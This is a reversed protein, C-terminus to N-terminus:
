KTNVSFAKPRTMTEHYVNGYCDTVKIELTSTPSSPYTRFLHSTGATKMASGELRDNNKNLRWMDFSIIHLPDFWNTVGWNLPKGDETIELKWSDEWSFINIIVENSNRRDFAYDQALFAFNSVFTPDSHNQDPAYEEPTIYINNRDYTRFQYSRDYGMSKYYRKYDSGTWEMVGYGGVSGDRCIHTNFYKGTWWWTACVGAINHEIMNDGVPINFNVHTHGTLLRVKSFGAFADVFEDANQIQRRTILEGTESRGPHGHLPIHMCVVIPTSKDAVTALDKRLWDMQESTIVPTETKNEAGDTVYEIDDLVVYHVKGLNFSYYTPGVSTRWEGATEFDTIARIDNDHNGMCHFIPVNIKAFDNLADALKYSKSYWYTDWTLDGLTIGYVKKGQDKYEKITANVDEVFQQRFQDMDNNSSSGRNALHADAMLIVVCDDNAEEKVVFDCQEVEDASLRLYKFFEPVGRQTDSFYGSPMSMFVYGNKKASPLWYCGYDDTTTVEFGDSVVVGALGKGNCSV